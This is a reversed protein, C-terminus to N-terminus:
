TVTPCPLEQFGVPKVAELVLVLEVWSLLSLPELSRSEAGAKAQKQGRRCDGRGERKMGSGGRRGLMAM